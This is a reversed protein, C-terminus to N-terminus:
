PQDASTLGVRGGAALTLSDAQVYADDTSVLFRGSTCYYTLWATALVLTLLAAITLLFHQRLLQGGARLRAGISPTATPVIQSQMLM